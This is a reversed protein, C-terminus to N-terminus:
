LLLVGLAFVGAFSGLIMVVYIAVPWEKGSALALSSGAVLFHSALFQAVAFGLPALGCPGSFAYLFAFFAGWGCITSAIMLVGALKPRTLALAGGGIAILSSLIGWTAIEVVRLAAYVGLIGTSGGTIGFVRAVKRVVTAVAPAPQEKRSALSLERACQPIFFLTALFYPLGFGYIGLLRLGSIASALMLVTALKPRRLASTGAAIATLSLIGWALTNAWAWAVRQVVDIALWVGVTAVLLGGIIGLVMAVKRM